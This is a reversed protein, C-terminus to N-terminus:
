ISNDLESKDITHKRLPVATRNSFWTGFVGIAMQIPDKCLIAVSKEADRHKKLVESLNLASEYFCKYTIQENLENKLAIKAPEDLAYKRIRELIRM